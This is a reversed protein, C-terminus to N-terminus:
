KPFQRIMRVLVVLHYELMRATTMTIVTTAMTAVGYSVTTTKRRVARVRGDLNMM